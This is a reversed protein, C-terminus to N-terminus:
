INVILEIMNDKTLDKHKSIAPIKGVPQLNEFSVAKDTIRIVIPQTGKIAFVLVSPIDEAYDEIRYSLVGRRELDDFLSIIQNLNEKLEESFKSSAEAAANKRANEKKRANEEIDDVLDNLNDKYSM